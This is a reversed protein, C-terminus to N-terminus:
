LCTGLYEGRRQALNARVVSPRWDPAGRSVRNVTLSRKTQAYGREHPEGIIIQFPVFDNM